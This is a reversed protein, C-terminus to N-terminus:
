VTVPVATSSRIRLQTPIIECRAPGAFGEMREILLHAARKGITFPDQAITTLPTQLHAAMDIDDFGAISMADPITLGLSRVAQTALVALYDNLAFIATPRPDATIMHNRIQQLEPSNVDVSSRLTYSAGIEKEPEGILWRDLIPLNHQSLVDCYARYRERVTLLDTEHHSLFVIHRHGLEILHQMLATAGGYNDSTVCDCEFRYIERDMLVMPVNLQHFHRANEQQVRSASAHPWLLLGAVGEEQFRKLIEIEEQRNQANSFIIHHGNTKVEDEAGNLLLLHTESDFGCTVFAILRSQREKHSLQAVFTGKGPIREVLGELEARQLAIRVTSRSINLEHTLQNESPIRTGAHWRGSVILERLQNHLQVHLSVFSDHYLLIDSIKNM